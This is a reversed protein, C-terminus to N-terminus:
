NKWETIIDPPIKESAFRYHAYVEGRKLYDEERNPQGGNHIIYPQGKKNRKDSVIGIHKGNDFIVIDGPQWESIVSIDTTLIDSYESFFTNLNKVRRFDINKDRVSIGSYSEPRKIIDKNIMERLDYGANKLARWIVDTCVGINDPPFGGDYYSGDYTPKNEADKKAGLLIDTYDDIGNQNYDIESKIIQIEFDEATYSKSPFLNYYYMFILVPAIILVFILFIIIITKRKLRQEHKM